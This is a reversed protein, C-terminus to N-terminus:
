KFSVTKWFLTKMFDNKKKSLVYLKSPGVLCYLIPTWLLAIYGFISCSISFGGVSYLLSGIVPGLTVGIGSCISVMAILASVQDPYDSSLIATSSITCCASGFGSLMRSLFSFLIAFTPTFSELFSILINSFAILLTGAILVSTRGITQMIKPLCFSLFLSSIPFVGFIWGIIVSPVGQRLAVAPYFPGIVTLTANSLLM